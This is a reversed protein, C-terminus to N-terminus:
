KMTAKLSRMRTLRPGPNGSHSLSFAGFTSTVRLIILTRSHYRFTMVTVKGSQLAGRISMSEMTEKRLPCEM